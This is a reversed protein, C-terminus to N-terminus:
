DGQPFIQIGPGSSAISCGDSGGDYDAGCM